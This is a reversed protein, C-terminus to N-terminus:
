VLPLSSSASSPRQSTSNVALAQTLFVPKILGGADAIGQFKGIMKHLIFKLYIYPSGKNQQNLFNITAQSLHYSKGWPKLTWVEGKKRQKTITAFM